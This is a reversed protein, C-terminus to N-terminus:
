IEALTVKLIDFTCFVKYIGNERTSQGLICKGILSLFAQTNLFHASSLILGLEIYEFKAKQEKRIKYM